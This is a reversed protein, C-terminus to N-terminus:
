CYIFIQMSDCRTPNRWGITKAKTVYMPINM